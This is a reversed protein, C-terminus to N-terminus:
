LFHYVELEAPSIDVLHLNLHSITLWFLKQPWTM